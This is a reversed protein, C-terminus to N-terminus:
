LKIIIEIFKKQDGQISVIKNFNKKVLGLYKGIEGYDKLNIKKYCGGGM